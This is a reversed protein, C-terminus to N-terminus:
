LVCLRILNKNTCFDNSNTLAECKSQDIELLKDTRALDIQPTQQM